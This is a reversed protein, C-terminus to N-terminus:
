QSPPLQGSLVMAVTTLVASLLTSITIIKRKKM